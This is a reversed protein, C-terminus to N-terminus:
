QGGAERELKEIIAELLWTQRTVPIDREKAFQEVREILDTPARFFVQSIQRHGKKGIRKSLSAEGGAPSAKRQPKRASAM